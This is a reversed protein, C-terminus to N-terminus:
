YNVSTIFQPPVAHALWVNNESQFFEVGAAVAAVTNITLIVPKGRRSGVTMATSYEASMHVLQRGGPILGKEMIPTVFQTVTGHYLVEPPTMPVLGLRVPFSHGQAARINSGKVTFRQKSDAETVALISETTIKQKFHTSLQQALTKVPVFGEDTLTLSYVEPAHRLAHSM